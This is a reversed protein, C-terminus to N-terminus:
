PLDIYARFGAGPPYDSIFPTVDSFPNQNPLFVQIKNNTLELSNCDDSLEIYGTLKAIYVPTFDAAVAFGTTTYVFKNYGIRMWNGRMTSLRVADELGLDMGSLTEPHLIMPDFVPFELNNTGYWFSSGEVTVMWGALPMVAGPAHLGFWTGQYRCGWNIFSASADKPMTLGGIMIGALALGVILKKM